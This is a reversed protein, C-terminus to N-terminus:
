GQVNHVDIIIDHENKKPDIVTKFIGTVRKKQSPFVDGVYSGHLKGIFIVPMNHKSTEIPEQMWINQIYDTKITTQVMQMLPKGCGRNTCKPM